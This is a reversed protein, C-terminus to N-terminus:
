SGHKLIDYLFSGVISVVIAVVGATWFFKLRSMDREHVLVRDGWNFVYARYTVAALWKLLASILYPGLILAVFYALYYYGSRDSSKLRELFIMAEIPGKVKGAQYAAQLADARQVSTVVLPEIWYNFIILILVVFVGNIIQSWESWIYPLSFFKVRKVRDDLEAETLFAWDRDNSKITWSVSTWSKPNIHADSFNLSIQDINDDASFTLDLRQIEKQGGNELSLIEDVKDTEVVSHDRLRVVFSSVVPTGRKTIQDECFKAIRRLEQESLVFGFEYTKPVETKAAM